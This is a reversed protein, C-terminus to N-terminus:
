RNHIQRKDPTMNNSAERIAKREDRISQIKSQKEEPTMDIFRDKMANRGEEENM